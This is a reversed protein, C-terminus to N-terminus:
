RQRAEGAGAAHGPHQGWQGGRGAPRWRRRDARQAQHRTQGSGDPKQGDKEGGLPAKTMVGDMAQWQWDIGKLDEYEELAIAWLQRFLRKKVLRLFYRHLTSGAGFARPVAKWQCGTRLVYFIGDLARRWGIPPRGGKRSRRLKPLLPECCEWMGDPM